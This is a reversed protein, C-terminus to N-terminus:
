KKKLIAAALLSVLLGVPFIELFTIGIKKWPNKYMVKYGDMLIRGEEIEEETAGKNNLDELYSTAYQDMWDTIIYETIFMWTVVYFISAVTSISLGIVFAQKFTIKGGLVGSRYRKIGIFVFSFAILMTTYGILQGIFHDTMTDMFRTSFLLAASLILGSLVGHTWVIRKM